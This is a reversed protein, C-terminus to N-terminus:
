EFGAVVEHPTKCATHVMVNLRGRHSMAMICEVAGHEGAMDLMADLMPILSTNGELSFRKTGLYRAQLVQEFLDARVLRELIKQQDVAEPEAEMREAIWNRREPQALHMFDAGISGCYHQRAEDAFEGSFDLDRSDLPKLFGLPDLNAQLYGWRRFAEFTRERDAGNGNKKTAKAPKAGRDAELTTRHVM